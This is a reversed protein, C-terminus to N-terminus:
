KTKKAGGMKEVLEATEGWVADEGDLERMDKNIFGVGDKWQKPDWRKKRWEWFDGFGGVLWDWVFFMTEYNAHTRRHHFDDLFM